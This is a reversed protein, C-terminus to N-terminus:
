IHDGFLSIPIDVSLWDARFRSSRFLVVDRSLVGSMVEGLGLPGAGVFRKGGWVGFDHVRCGSIGWFGALGM